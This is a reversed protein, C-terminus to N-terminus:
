YIIVKTIYINTTASTVAQGGLDGQLTNEGTVTLGSDTVVVIKAMSQQNTDTSYYNIDLAIQMGNIYPIKGTSKFVSTNNTRRRCYIIEIDSINSLENDFIISSNTGQSDDYISTGANANVVRKIENIDDATIRNILPLSSIITSIKDLFTIKM